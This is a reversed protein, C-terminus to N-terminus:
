VWPIIIIFLLYIFGLIFIIFVLIFITSWLQGCNIKMNVLYQDCNSTPSHNVMISKWISVVNRVIHCQVNTLWQQGHNIEINLCDKDCHSTPGHSVMEALSWTQGHNVMTWKQISVIKQWLTINSCWQGHNIKM